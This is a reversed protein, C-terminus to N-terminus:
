RWGGPRFGAAVMALPHDGRGSAEMLLATLDRVEFGTTPARRTRAM